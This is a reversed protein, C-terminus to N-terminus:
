QPLDMRLTAAPKVANPGFSAGPAVGLVGEIYVRTIEGVSRVDALAGGPRRPVDGDFLECLQGMGDGSLHDLCGILTARIEARAAANAGRVRLLADAYPGLLWPYVSGQHYARDRSVPDGQYRGAYAPESPALTRLGVPTLLQNRVVDLVAAQHENALVPHPLSMALLQNPRLSDDAGFDHVVDFLCGRRENWFRRNFAHKISMALMALEESRSIRGLSRMLDSGICVANYWLANLEVPRGQRATVVWDGVKADMWTTPTGAAHTTLLGDVDVSIGLTTGHQYAELIRGVSEVLVGLSAPDEGTYKLYQKVANVFWLSADASEYRPAGADEPYCSPLLGNWLDAAASELVSKAEAFRRSALFLGPLAIMADRVSPPSWPYQTMVVHRRAGADSSNVPVFQRGCELLTEASNDLATHTQGPVGLLVSHRDMASCAEQLDIPDTSCLFHVSRGPALSWRVLGPSWVDELGAYGREHERRYINSLYWLPQIGFAGDHAFFVEPTRTTAPIRHHGPMTELVDLSGNWQFMLEHMGRLAFM